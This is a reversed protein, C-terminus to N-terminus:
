ISILSLDKVKKIVNEGASERKVFTLVEKFPKHKSLLNDNLIYRFGFQNVFITELSRAFNKAREPKNGDPLDEDNSGM